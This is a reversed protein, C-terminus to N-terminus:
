LLDVEKFRKLLIRGEGKGRSIDDIGRKPFAEFSPLAFPAHNSFNILASIYLKIWPKRPCFIQGWVDFIARPKNGRRTRIEEEKKEVQGGGGGRGMEQTM